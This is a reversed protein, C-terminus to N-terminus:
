SRRCDIACVFVEIRVDYCAQVLETQEGTVELIEFAPRPRAPPASRQSSARNLKAAQGSNDAFPM